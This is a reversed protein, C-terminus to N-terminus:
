APTPQFAAADTRGLMESATPFGALDASIRQVAEFRRPSVLLLPAALAQFLPTPLTLLRCRAARPDSDQIRELLQRYSLIEDGGLPLLAPTLGGGAAPEAGIRRAQDIAVAALEAAPIPQRQGTHAPLPLLPLRRLLRRLVEVNRDAHHRSRGHILTPALIRGPVVLRECTTQLLEQAGALRAVLERDFRNAAFRKTIVSSSSCAVVGKLGTLVEPHRHVLAALFPALLWIPAFSIWVQMGGPLTCAVAQLAAPALDELDCPCWRWHGDFPPRRHSLCLLDADAPLQEILAEGCLSSAGFLVLTSPLSVLAQPL